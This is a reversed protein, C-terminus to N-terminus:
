CGLDEPICKDKEPCYKFNEQCQESQSQEIYIDGCTGTCNVIISGDEAVQYTINSDGGSNVILADGEITTNESGPQLLTKSM